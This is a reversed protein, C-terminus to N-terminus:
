RVTKKQTPPEGRCKLSGKRKEGYTLVYDSRNLKMLKTEFKELITPEWPILKNKSEKLMKNTLNEKLMRGNKTKTKNREELLRKMEPNDHCKLIRKLRSVNSISESADTLSSVTINNSKERINPHFNLTMM